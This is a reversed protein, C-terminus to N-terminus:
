LEQATLYYGTRLPDIRGGPRKLGLVIEYRVDPRVQSQGIRIRFLTYPINWQGKKDEITVFRTDDERIDDIRFCRCAGSEEELILDYECVRDVAPGDIRGTFLYGSIIWTRGITEVENLICVIRGESPPLPGSFSRSPKAKYEMNLAFDNGV